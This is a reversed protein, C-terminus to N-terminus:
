ARGARRRCARGAACCYRQEAAPPVASGRGRLAAPVAGAGRGPVGLGERRRSARVGLERMLLDASAGARGARVSKTDLALFLPQRGCCRRGRAAPSPGPSTVAARGGRAAGGAGASPQGAFGLSGENRSRPIETIRTCSERSGEWKLRTQLLEFQRTVQSPM